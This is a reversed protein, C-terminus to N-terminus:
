FKAAFDEIVAAAGASELDRSSICLMGAATKGYVDQLDAMAAGASKGNMTAFFAARKIAGRNQLLYSRAAPAISSFGWLPGGIIVLDYKTPDKTIRGIETPIKKMGDRGAFLWGIIGSRNKSDYLQEIDANLRKALIEALKKTTGTMSYYVVLTKM